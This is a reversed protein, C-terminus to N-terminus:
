DALKKLIPLDPRLGPSKVVFSCALLRDSHGGGEISVKAPLGKASKKVEGRPRADSGLVRFGKKALLRAVSRGSKGLGLVGAFKKRFSKPDFRRNMM